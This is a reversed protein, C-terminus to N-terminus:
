TFRTASVLDFAAIRRDKEPLTPTHKDPTFKGVILTTGLVRWTIPEPKKQSAPTFFNVVSKEPPPHTTLM